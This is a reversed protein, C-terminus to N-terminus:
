LRDKEGSIYGGVKDNESSSPPHESTQQPIPSSAFNDPDSFQPSREHPNSHMSDLPTGNDFHGGGSLTPNDDQSNEYDSEVPSLEALLSDADVIEADDTSLMLTKLQAMIQQKIESSDQIHEIRKTERFADVGVVTGLVKVAAVRTADKTTESTAVETLTSIVLSRLSESSHYASLEKARELAEITNAVKPNKTLKWAEVSATNAKGKHDYAERYAETKNMGELVIGEAFKRQKATLSNKPIRLIPAIGKQSIAERLQKRTPQKMIPQHESESM